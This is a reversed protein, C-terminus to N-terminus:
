FDCHAGSHETCKTVKADLNNQCKMREGESFLFLQKNDNKGQPKLNDFYAGSPEKCKTVKADLNSQIKM